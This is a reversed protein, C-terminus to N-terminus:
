RAAAFGGKRPDSGARFRMGNPTHEVSIMNVSPRADPEDTVKEGRKVLGARVDAPVEAEVSIGGRPSLHFRPQAVCAAPDCGYYLYSLLVQTVGTAIRPGGSGGLAAVPGSADFVITPAMSSVPRALPRPRNPGPGTVGFGTLSSAENFDTLEDNLLIGTSTEIGSGFATNVTTTLTVVNGDNDMVVLHTTGAERLKYEAPVHTQTLSIRAKRAALQAPALAATFADTVGPEFEPDGAVRMRDAMAGRMTEALVHTYASSGFGSQALPGSSAAGHMRLAELVMLGGASPAPMSLVRFAGEQVALPEREKPQYNLLDDLTLASGAAQAATVVSQALPGTYFARPGNQALMHLTKGLNTRVVRTGLNVANGGPVIARALEGDSSLKAKASPMAHALHGSVWFGNTALSEAPQVLAAFPLKGYHSSLYGLGAVEGPVGIAVGQKSSQPTSSQQAFLHTGDFHAPATERFDLAVTKKDRASYVLAFGGGGIGSGAPAVVGLVLAAAVAADAATGGADLIAIAARTADANETAM